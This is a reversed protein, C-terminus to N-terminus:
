EKLLIGNKLFYITDMMGALERSHTVVVLSTHEQENLSILLEMLQVANDEDLAGTPEDALLLAPQNILARVVAVRQCEGGSLEGPFQYRNDWIGVKRLLDLARQQVDEDKAKRALTPVLVNEWLTCQPLLHHLQFIFGIEQNRYNLIEKESFTSLTKGKFHIHGSDPLDLSGILNLLTTKGSGSPGVIAIKEGSNIELNIDKLVERVIEGSAKHYNKSINKLSLLM